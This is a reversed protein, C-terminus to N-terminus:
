LKPPKRSYEVRVSRIGDVARLAEELALPDAQARPRILYVLERVRERSAPPADPAPASRASVRRKASVTRLRELAFYGCFRDLEREVAPQMAEGRAGRVRLTGVLEDNDRLPSFRLVFAALCFVATGTLAITFGMVGCAIGAGLSAFMFTINRPDSLSTRFRIISLAGIIGLGIAVSEGIAQLITPAVDVAETIVDVRGSRM